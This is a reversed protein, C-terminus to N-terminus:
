LLCWLTGQLTAQFQAETPPCIGQTLTHGVSRIEYPVCQALPRRPLNIQHPHSTADEQITPTNLIGRGREKILRICREVELMHEKAATTNVALIPLLIRFPEFENDTLITGVVFRGQLYVDM